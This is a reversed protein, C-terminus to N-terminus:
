FKYTTLIDSFRQDLSEGAHNVDQGPCLPDALVGSRYSLFNTSVYVAIVAPGTQLLEQLRTENKGIDEYKPDAPLGNM